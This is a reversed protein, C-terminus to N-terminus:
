YSFAEPMKMKYAQPRAADHSNEHWAHAQLSGWVLWPGQDQDQGPDPSFPCSPAASVFWGPSRVDYGNSEFFRLLRRPFIRRRKQRMRQFRGPRGHLSIM